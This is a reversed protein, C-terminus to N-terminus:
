SPWGPASTMCGPGVFRPISIAAAPPGVARLRYDELLDGVANGHSHSNQIKQQSSLTFLSHIHEKQDFFAFITFASPSFLLEASIKILISLDNLDIRGNALITTRGNIGLPLLGKGPKNIKMHVKPFGAPFVLFRDLCSRVGRGLASKRRNKAHGLVDGV